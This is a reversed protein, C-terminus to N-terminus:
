KKKGKAPLNDKNSKDIMKATDILQKETESPMVKDLYILVKIASTTIADYKGDDANKSFTISIDESGYMADQKRAAYMIESAREFAKLMEFVNIHEELDAIPTIYSKKYGNYKALEEVNLKSVDVHSTKYKKVLYKLYNLAEKFQNNDTIKTLQNIPEDELKAIALELSCETKPPITEKFKESNFKLTSYLVEMVLKDSSEKPSEGFRYFQDSVIVAREIFDLDRMRKSEILSSTSLKISQNRLEGFRSLDESNLQEGVPKSPNPAKEVIKKFENNVKIQNKGIEVQNNLATMWLKLKVAQFTCENFNLKSVDYSQTEAANSNLCFIFLLWSINITKQM